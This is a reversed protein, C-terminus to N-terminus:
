SLLGSVSSGAVPSSVAAPRGPPGGTPADKPQGGPGAGGPTPQPLYLGQIAAMVVPEQLGTVPVRFMRSLGSAREYGINAFQPARFVLEAAGENMMAPWVTWLTEVAAPHAEGQGARDIAATPNFVAELRHAFAVADAYSPLADSKFGRTALGPDRPAVDALHRLARNVHTALKPGIEAPHGLTPEVALFMADASTLAASRVEKIRNLAQKRVDTEPDKEGSFAGASLYDVAPRVKTVASAAPAGWREAMGYIKDRIGGKAASLTGNLLADEVVDTGHRAVTRAAGAAGAGLWGGGAMGFTKFGIMNVAANKAAKRLWPIIGTATEEGATLSAASDIANRYRGLEAHVGAVGADPPLGLEDAVKAFAGASADDLSNALRAVTEPHMRSFERLNGPLSVRPELASPLQRPPPPLDPVPISGFERSMTERLSYMESMMEDYRGAGKARYARSVQAKLDKVRSGMDAKVERGVWNQKTVAGAASTGAFDAGVAETPPVGPLPTSEVPGGTPAPHDSLRGTDDVVSPTYGPRKEVQSIAQRFKLLDKAPKSSSTSYKQYAKTEAEVQRRASNALKEAEKAGSEHLTKFENWSPSSGEFAKAGRKATELVADQSAREAAVARARNAVGTMGEAVKGLGYNMLAGVGAAEITGEITLPDGTVNTHAVHAQAGVIAGEALVGAARSGTAKAIGAGARAALGVATAEGVAKAGGGLWGTPLALAGLEGAFRSGPHVQARGRMAAVGEGDGPGLDRLKGYGGGTVMDLFGEGTALAANGAGAYAAHKAAEGVRQAAEEGSEPRLNGVEAEEAPVSVVKGDPLVVNVLKGM